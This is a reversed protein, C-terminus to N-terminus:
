EPKGHKQISRLQATTFSTWGNDIYTALLNTALGMINEYDGDGLGFAHGLEHLLVVEKIYELKDLLPKM